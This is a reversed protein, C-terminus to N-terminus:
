VLRLTRRGFLGGPRVLLVLVFVIFVSYDGYFPGIWLAVLSEVVGVVFGAIVVGLQSGLGGLALVVFGKLAITIALWPSASTSMLVFPGVLGAFAGTIAFAGISLWRVNVGRLMTAERDFAQARSTLGFRTGRLLLHLVLGFLIPLGILVLNNPVVRGGLLDIPHQAFLTLRRPDAGWILVTVATIATGAGLTTILEAHSGSPM